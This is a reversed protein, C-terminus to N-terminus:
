AQIEESKETILMSSRRIEGIKEKKVGKSKKRVLRWKGTSNL